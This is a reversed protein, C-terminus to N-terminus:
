RGSSSDAPVRNIVVPFRAVSLLQGDNARATIVVDYRGAAVSVGYGDREDWDLNLSDAIPGEYLGRLRKGDEAYVDVSVRHPNIAFVTIRVGRDMARVIAAGHLSKRIGDYFDTVAKPFTLADIRHQPAHALLARFAATASDRHQLFWEAAGLYMLATAKASGSLTDAGNSALAQRLLRVAHAYSVDDYALVGSDLAAKATLARVTPAHVTVQANAQAVATAAAVASCAVVVTLARPISRM